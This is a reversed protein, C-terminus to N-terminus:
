GNPYSAPFALKVTDRNPVERHRHVEVQVDAPFAMAELAGTRPALPPKPPPWDVGEPDVPDEPLRGRQGPVRKKQRTKRINDQVNEAVTGLVLHTPNVCQHNSCLHCVLWGKPVAAKWVAYSVRHASYSKGRWYLTPYGSGSNGPKVQCGLATRDSFKEELSKRIKPVDGPRFWLFRESM